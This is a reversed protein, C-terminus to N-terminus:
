RMILPFPVGISLSAVFRDALKPLGGNADFADNYGFLLTVISQGPYAAPVVAVGLAFNAAASSNEILDVSAASVLALVPLSGAAGLTAAKLTLDARLHGAWLDPLPGFERLYRDSCVLNNFRARRICIEQPLDSGPSGLERRAEALLGVTTGPGFAHNYGLGGVVDRQLREDFHLVTSDSNVEVIRLEHTGHGATLYLIDYGYGSQRITYSVRGGVTVGPTFDFNAFLSMEGTRASATAYAAFGLGGGQCEGYYCRTAPEAVFTLGLRAEAFGMNFLGYERPIVSTHSNAAKYATQGALTPGVLLLAAIALGIVTSRGRPEWQM